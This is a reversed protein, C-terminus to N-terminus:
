FHYRRAFEALVFLLPLVGLAAVIRALFRGRAAAISFLVAALLAAGLAFRLVGQYDGDAVTVNAAAVALITSLWAWAVSVVPWQSRRRDAPIPELPAADAM